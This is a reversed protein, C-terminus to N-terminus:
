WKSVEEKMQMTQSHYIKADNDGYLKGSTLAKWSMSMKSGKDEDPLSKALSTSTQNDRGAKFQERM